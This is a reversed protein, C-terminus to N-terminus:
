FIWSIGVFYVNLIRVCRYNRFCVLSACAQLGELTRLMDEESESPNVSFRVTATRDCSKCVRVGILCIENKCLGFTGNTYFAIEGANVARGINMIDHATTM